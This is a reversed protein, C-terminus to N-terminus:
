QLILLNRHDWTICKTNVSDAVNARTKRGAVFLEDNGAITHISKHLANLLLRISNASPIKPVEREPERLAPKQQGLPPSPRRDLGPTAEVPTIPEGLFM